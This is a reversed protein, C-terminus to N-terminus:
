TAFRKPPSRRARDPLSRSSQWSRISCVSGILELLLQGGEPSLRADHVSAARESLWAIIRKEDLAKRKGVTAEPPRCDIQLGTEDVQRYLRTTAAWTDAELILTAGGAPRAVYDELAARNASVFSDAEEVIVLRRGSGFLGVTALEDHVDRWKASEGAVVGYPTDDDGLAARRLKDIALKKLFADSGFVVGIPPAASKRSALYDFVHLTNSM